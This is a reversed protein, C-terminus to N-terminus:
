CPFAPATFHVPREKVQLYYCLVLVQFLVAPEVTRSLETGGTLCLFLAFLIGSIFLCSCFIVIRRDVPPPPNTKRRIWLFRVGVLVLLAICWRSIPNFLRLSPGYVDGNNEFCAWGLRLTKVYRSISLGALGFIDRPRSFYATMFAHKITDRFSPDEFRLVRLEASPASFPDGHYKTNILDIDEAVQRLMAAKPSKPDEEQKSREQLDHSKNDSCLLLVMNGPMPSKSMSYKFSLAYIFFAVGLVILARVRAFRFPRFIFGALLLLCVSGLTFFMLWPKLTTSLLTIVVSYVVIMGASTEWQPFFIEAMLVVIWTEVAPIISETLKSGSFSWLAPLLFFGALLISNRASFLKQRGGAYWILFLLSGANILFALISMKVGLTDAIHLFVPFLFPRMSVYGPLTLNDADQQYGPSDPHLGLPSLSLFILWFLFLLILATQSWNKIRIQRNLM